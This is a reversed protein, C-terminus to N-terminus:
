GWSCGNQFHHLTNLVKHANEAEGKVVFSLLGNTGTLYKAFLEKQGYTESGPYYVTEVAPHGELFAAVKMANEGHQKLRLPLTRMGRILLWAQHPDMNAGLLVREKGQISSIIERNAVVAGGLIDSHGGLYKTATHCVIDIGHRLPNQHLPTAYTNDIVTGIGHEKALAAVAELDQMRFVFSSPSELYILTTEPRIADRIESIDRGDVFTYTVGFKPALWDRILSASPGYISDVAIIHCGAKTFHLIASSIAAMGSGFCLAGDGGELAAIKREAIDVTPNNVRSYAYETQTLGNVETPQVFLTNQFIPPVIAGSFKDYDDGLHACIDDPTTYTRDKETLFAM